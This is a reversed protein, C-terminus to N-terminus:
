SFKNQLLGLMATAAMAFHSRRPTVVDAFHFIQKLKLFKAMQM